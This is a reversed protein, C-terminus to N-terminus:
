LFRFARPYKASYFSFHGLNEPIIGLLHDKYSTSIANAAKPRDLFLAAEGSALCAWVTPGLDFDLAGM